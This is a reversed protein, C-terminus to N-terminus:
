PKSPGGLPAETDVTDGPRIRYHDWILGVVFSILGVIVALVGILTVLNTSEGLVAQIILILAGLWIALRSYWTFSSM